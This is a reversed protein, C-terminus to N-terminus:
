EVKAIETEIIEDKDKFEKYSIGTKKKLKMVRKEPFAILIKNFVKHHLLWQSMMREKADLYKAKKAEVGIIDYLGKMVFRDFTSHCWPCLWEYDNVDRKYDGSINALDFDRGEIGSDERQCIACHGTKEKHNRVWEHLASYGVESENKVHGEHYKNNFNNRILKSGKAFEKLKGSKSYCEHNCYIQSGRETKFTNKCSPCIKDIM